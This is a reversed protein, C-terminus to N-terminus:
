VCPSLIVYSAVAPTNLVEEPLVAPKVPKGFVIRVESKSEVIFKEALFHTRFVRRSPRRFLAAYFPRFVVGCGDIRAARAVAAYDGIRYVAVSEQAPSSAGIM